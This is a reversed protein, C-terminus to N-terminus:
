PRCPKRFGRHRALKPLNGLGLSSTVHLPLVNSLHCFPMPLGHMNMKVCEDQVIWVSCKGPSLAWSIYPGSFSNWERKRRGNVLPQILFYGAPHLDLPLFSFSAFCPDTYDLGQGQLDDWHESLNPPVRQFIFTSVERTTWHNLLQRGICSAHTGVRVPFSLDWMSCPCRPGPM